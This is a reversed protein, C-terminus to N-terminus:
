VTGDGKGGEGQAADGAAVILRLPPAAEPSPPESVGAHGQTEIEAELRRREADRAAWQRRTARLEDRLGHWLGTTFAGLLILKFRLPWLLVALGKVAQRALWAGLRAAQRAAAGVLRPLLPPPQPQRRQRTAPRKAAPRTM